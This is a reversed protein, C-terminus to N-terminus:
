AGVYAKLKWAGRWSDRDTAHMVLLKYQLVINDPTVPTNRLSPELGLGHCVAKATIRELQVFSLTELDSQTRPNHLSGIKLDDAPGLDLIQSWTTSRRSQRFLEAAFLNTSNQTGGILVGCPGECRPQLDLPARHQAIPRITDALLDKQPGLVALDVDLVYDQHFQGRRARLAHANHIARGYYDAIDEKGMLM